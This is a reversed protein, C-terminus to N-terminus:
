RFKKDYQDCIRKAEALSLGYRQRILAIAQIKKGQSMMEAVFGYDSDETKQENDWVSLESLNQM